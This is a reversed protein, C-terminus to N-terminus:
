KAKDYLRKRLNMKQKILPNIWPLKDRSKALKSPIRKSIATQIADKLLQWNHEISNQLPDSASFHEQFEQLENKLGTIDGKHYLYIRRSAKKNVLPRNCNILFTVIEHDSMGPATHLEKILSPTSVCVLDLVHNQRTPSSVFQELNHNNIIDILAENLGHGYNPNPLITGKAWILEATTDLNPEETCVLTDKIGLFVGGGGASRDKRCINFSAPFIESSLYSSDLHSECGVIIDPEHEQLLGCFRARRSTSRLSCCNVSIVKIIDPSIHNTSSKHMNLKIIHNKGRNPNDLPTLNSDNFIVNDTSRSHSM